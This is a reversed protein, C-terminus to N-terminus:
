RNEHLYQGRYQEKAPDDSKTRLFLLQLVRANERLALGHPNNVVLLSESRGQYGADWVATEITAGCRLLSSRPAALAIMGPPINVWENYVIKYPGPELEVWGHSDFQLPETAALIRHANSLALRGPATYPEVRQMTLDFGNPQIQLKYDIYDSILAPKDGPHMIRDEIEHKGLVNGKSPLSLPM